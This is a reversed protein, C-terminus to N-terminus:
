RGRLISGGGGTIWSRLGKLMSRTGYEVTRGSLTDPTKAAPLAISKSPGRYNKYADSINRSAVKYQAKARSFRLQEARMNANGYKEAKSWDKKPDQTLYGKDMSILRQATEAMVKRQYEKVLQKPDSLDIPQGGADTGRPKRSARKKAM